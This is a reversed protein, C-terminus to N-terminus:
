RLTYFDIEVLRLVSRHSRQHVNYCKLYSGYKRKGPTDALYWGADTRLKACGEM